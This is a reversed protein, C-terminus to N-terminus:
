AFHATLLAVVKDLSTGDDKPHFTAFVPAYSKLKAFQTDANEPIAADIFVERNMDNRLVVRDETVVQFIFRNIKATVDLKTDDQITKLAVTSYVLTPLTDTNYSLTNQFFDEESKDRFYNFMRPRSGYYLYSKEVRRFPLTYDSLFIAHDAVGDISATAMFGTHLLVGATPLHTYTVGDATGSDRVTTVVRLTKYWPMYKKVAKIQAALLGRNQDLLIVDIDKPVHNASGNVCVVVVVLAASLFLLFVVMMIWLWRVESTEDERSGM